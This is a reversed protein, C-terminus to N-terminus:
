RSVISSIAFSGFPVERTPAAVVSGTLQVQLCSEARLRADRSAGFSIHRLRLSLERLQASLEESSPLNVTAFYYQNNINVFFRSVVSNADDTRLSVLCYRGDARVEEAGAPEAGGFVGGVLAFLLIGLICKMGWEKTGSSLGLM